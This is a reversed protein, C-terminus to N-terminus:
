IGNANRGASKMGCMESYVTCHVSYMARKHCVTLSEYIRKRIKENIIKCNHAGWHQYLIWERQLHHVIGSIPFLLSNAFMPICMQDFTVCFPFNNNHNM